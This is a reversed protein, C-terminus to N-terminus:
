RRRRFRKREDEKRELEEQKSLGKFTDSGRMLVTVFGGIMMMAMAIELPMLEYGLLPETIGSVGWGALVIFQLATIFMLLVMRDARGMIGTYNRGVGVAQAQTGMYSALLVFTIAILGFTTNCYPSFSIGILMAIDSFRDFTHDLFDGVKSAKGTHRAVRGDLTDALSNLIIFLLALLLPWSYIGDNINSTWEDAIGYFLGAVIAFFFSMITFVNPHIFSLANTVPDFFLDLSRRHSELVM